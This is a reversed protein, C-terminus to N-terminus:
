ARRSFHLIGSRAGTKMWRQPLPWSRNVGSSNTFQATLM